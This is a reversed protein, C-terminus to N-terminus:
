RSLNRLLFFFIKVPDEMWGDMWVRIFVFASAKSSGNSGRTSEVRSTEEPQRIGGCTGALTVDVVPFSLSDSACLSLRGTRRQLRLWVSRCTPLLPPPSLVSGHFAPPCLSENRRRYRCSRQRHHHHHHHHHHYRHHHHHPPPVDVLQIIVSHVANTKYNPSFRLVTPEVEVHWVVFRGSDREVHRVVRSALGPGSGGEARRVGKCAGAESGQNGAEDM